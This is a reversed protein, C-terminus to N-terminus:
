SEQDHSIQSLLEVAKGLLTERDNSLEGDIVLDLLRDLIDGMVKNRPVGIEILDRGGVALQRLSFCRDKALVEDLVDELEDYEMSRNYVRYNQRLNDARKIDILRRLDEEGFRNLARRMSKETPMLPSDHYRVLKLIREKEENSAKLRLLIDICLEYSKQAHGYFHGEGKEDLTFTYPKGIDHLLMVLRSIEDKPANEVSVATHELVDYIHHRNKQDFGKAKLLEPIFVGIIDVYELLVKRVDPGMLLKKLEAFIREASIEKLLDRNRHLSDATGEEIAFGFQSAFRIARLIRLPDENFRSDPDGIARIIGSELDEMGKFYDTLGTDPDYLLSNITFDRRSVDEKPDSVFTVEDPRRHDSYGNETRFTTIEVPEGDVLVTVTGHRIGTEIVTRDSFLQEVERPLADTTIDIDSLPLGLYYNRVSGGVLYAKHGADKLKRIVTLARNPIKM